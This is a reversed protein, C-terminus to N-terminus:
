KEVSNEKRMRIKKDENKTKISKKEGKVLDLDKRDERIKGNFGIKNESKLSV